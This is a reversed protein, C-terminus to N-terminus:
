AFPSRKLAITLHLEDQSAHSVWSDSVRWIPSAGQNNPTTYAGPPLSSFNMTHRPLQETAPEYGANNAEAQGVSGSAYQVNPMTYGGHNPPQFALPEWSEVRAYNFDYWPISGGGEGRGPGTLVPIPDGHTGQQTYPQANYNPAVSQSFSYTM